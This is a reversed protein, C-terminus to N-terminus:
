TRPHTLSLVKELCYGWDPGDANITFEVARDDIYAVAPLKINTVQLSLNLYQAIYREVHNRSSADEARTTFVVVEYGRDQLMAIFSGAGEVPPEDDPVPGVWGRTYPHIVGDFDIM